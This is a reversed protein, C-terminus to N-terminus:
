DSDHTPKPTLVEGSARRKFILWLTAVFLAITAWQAATMYLYRKDEARLFDLAFRFPTYLLGFTLLYWGSFHTKNRQMYFFASMGMAWIAEYLGLNHRIGPSVEESGAYPMAMFFTTISGPHDFAVTCGLRGFIWAVAFGFMITDAFPWFPLKSRHLFYMVGFMGGLFGGVSSIGDWVKFLYIPDAAINEPFYFIASYLHAGIFGPIIAWGIARNVLYPDLGFRVARKEVITSGVFVATAVLIGFPHITLPGFHIAPIEYYPLVCRKQSLPSHNYLSPSM